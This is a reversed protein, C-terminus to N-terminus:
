FVGGTRWLWYIIVAALLVLALVVVIVFCQLSSTSTAPRYSPEFQEQMHAPPVPPQMSPAILGRMGSDRDSRRRSRCATCRKPRVLGHEKYYRQEGSSWVFTRGCEICEIIEDSV